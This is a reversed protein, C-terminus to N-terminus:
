GGARAAASPAERGAAVPRPLAPRVLTALHTALLDCQRRIDPVATIEWFAGKTVPGVAFLRRSIASDRSLLACTNTVDLGLRLPDPRVHGEALLRQVLPHAIRDYDCMPGSCNVVRQVRLSEVQGSGRRRFTAEVGGGVERLSHLRAGEVTLQGRRLAAELRDAVPGPMRHRHIDWWPRVHRVFRLRDAHSMAQWLDQTFPRLADVAPQWHGGAAEARGAERRLARLLATLATPYAPLSDPPPPLAPEHRHPLKGRRSVAHVPGTHGQDLLSVLADAMTLGTGILLVPAEPALGGLAEPAWPDPRYFPGDYFSPDAIRPPEPPFNGVALVALDAEVRRDRDLCLCLAQRRVDIGLVDGRVLALRDSDGRKLEANLYHRIYAGFLQRPVFSRETPAGEPLCVDSQARLWALFDHPRDHFASMRGAPVNLLHSPNGAAYAPGRGFQRNREILTVQTSPPCRRLIHLSLLTGSFGAGIVAIRTSM